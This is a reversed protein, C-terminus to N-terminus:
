GKEPNMKLPFAWPSIDEARRGFVDWEPIKAWIRESEAQVGALLASEDIGKFQRDAMVVRGDIIVTEIDRGSGYEVFAKIPDFIAGYDIKTIDAIFLDAKAGPALKGLDDRGLAKAGGLTAANFCDRYSGALYDREAFRNMLSATRMENVMDFPYSDTGLSVTVGRALYRDLSELAIGFKSYKFPCHSISTGSDAIMGLDNGRPLATWSHGNLFVCHGLIVEPGLFGLGNLFGIPTTGYNLEIQHFEIMNIAAHIQIGVDLDRAAEKTKKLLEPTCTDPQRPYLMGQIRGNYSGRHKKIFDVAQQLGKEGIEDSWVYRLAGQNRM